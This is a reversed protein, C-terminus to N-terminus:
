QARCGVVAGTRNDVLLEIGRGPAACSQLFATNLGWFAVLTGTPIALHPYRSAALALFQALATVEGRAAIMAATRCSDVKYLEQPAFLNWIHQQSNQGYCTPGSPPPAPPLGDGPDAHATGSLGATMAVAAAMIRLSKM